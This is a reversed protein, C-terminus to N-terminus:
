FRRVIAPAGTRARAISLQRTAPTSGGAFVKIACVGAGQELAALQDINTKAGAVYLGIDCWSQQEVYGRKWDLRQQDAIPPNTNPMDFVTTVGGLVAARTGTALAEVAPDGPDRLHVHSDILGPLVHLGGADVIEAATDAGLAGIAAIRGERVGVDVSEEGWPLVCIGGRIMLDYHM